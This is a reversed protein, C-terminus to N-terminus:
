LTSENKEIIEQYDNENHWYEDPGPLYIGSAASWNRFKETFAAMEKTDLKATSKLFKQGNKEYVLGM